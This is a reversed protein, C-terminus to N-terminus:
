TQTAHITHMFCHMFCQSNSFMLISYIYLFRNQVSVFFIYLDSAQTEHHGGTFEWSQGCIEEAELLAQLKRTFCSMDIESFMPLNCKAKHVSLEEGCLYWLNVLSQMTVVRCTLISWCPYWEALKLPSTWLFSGHFSLRFRSQSKSIHLQMGGLPLSSSEQFTQPDQGPLDLAALHILGDGGPM